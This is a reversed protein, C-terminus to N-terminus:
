EREKLFDDLKYLGVSNNETVENFQPGDVNICKLVLVYYDEDYSTAAEIIEDISLKGKKKEVTLFWRGERDYAAYTETKGM